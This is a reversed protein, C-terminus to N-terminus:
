RAGQGTVAVDLLAALYEIGAVSVPEVRAGTVRVSDCASYIGGEIAAVASSPGTSDLYVAIADRASRVDAKGVVILVPLTLTVAGRGMTASYDIEDPWGVFAAPPVVNPAPYAFVRLDGVGDLAGGVQDMVAAVDM